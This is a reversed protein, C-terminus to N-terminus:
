LTTISNDGARCVVLWSLKLNKVEPTLERFTVSFNTPNRGNIRYTVQSDILPDGNSILTTLLSTVGGIVVTFPIVVTRAEINGIPYVGSEIIQYASYNLTDIDLNRHRLATVKQKPLNLVRGAMRGPNLRIIIAM